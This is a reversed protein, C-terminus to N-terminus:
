RLLLSLLSLHTKDLNKFGLRRTLTLARKFEDKTLLRNIEPFKEVRGAPHYHGMLNLHVNASIEDRIFSLIKETEELMGPMVLHRIILGRKALGKEDLVLEGVQRYMEKIAERAVKAYDKAGLYKACLDPSWLKFDALYIDVIGELLKLTEIKDYSGTNFVIPLALGKECAIKLAKLIQLVQHSPTVLNINACGQSALELMVEALKEYSIEQGAGEQSIEYTQCFVCALNCGSFFIAGSGQEGM